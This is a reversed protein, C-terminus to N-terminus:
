RTNGLARVVANLIMPTSVGLSFVSSISFIVISSHLPWLNSVHMVVILNIGPGGAVAFLWM